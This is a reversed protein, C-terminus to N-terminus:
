HYDTRLCQMNTMEFPNIKSHIMDPLVNCSPALNDSSPKTSDLDTGVRKNHKKEEMPEMAQWAQIAANCNDGATTQKTFM